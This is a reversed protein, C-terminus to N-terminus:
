RTATTAPAVSSCQVSCCEGVLHWIIFSGNVYHSPQPDFSMYTTGHYIVQWNGPIGTAPFTEEPTRYDGDAVPM